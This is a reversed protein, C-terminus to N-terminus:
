STRASGSDFLDVAESIIGLLTETTRRADYHEEVRRRGADGMSTRLREDNVLQLIADALESADPDVLIGTEGDVVIEPLAATPSAVVAVGAAMAEIVAYGFADMTSPFAFVASRSLIEALRPDGPTIDPYLNVGPPPTIRERTVLNLTVRGRLYRDYADLLVLGGKRRLSSGTFTVEPLGPPETRRVPGPLAIGFPIIRIREEPIHYDDRLSTAAWESKAVVLTAARLAPDEFRRSIRVRAATHSTPDRYPLRYAGCAGTADTSIVSPHRALIRTSLLAVNQTYLHLAEFDDACRALRSRVWASQALQYRLPQLDLDRRALGPIQVAVLKRLAGPAPVDIFTADISPEHRLAERLHLHMTRNGGIDENVFAVRTPAGRDTADGPIMLKAGSRQSRTTLSAADM